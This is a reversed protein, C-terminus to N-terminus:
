HKRIIEVHSWPAQSHIVEAEAHAEWSTPIPEGVERGDLLIVYYARSRQYAQQEM